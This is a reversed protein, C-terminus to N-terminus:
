LDFTLEVFAKLPIDQVQESTIQSVVVVDIHSEFNLEELRLFVPLVCIQAVCHDRNGLDLL